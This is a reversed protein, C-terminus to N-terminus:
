LYDELGTPDQVQFRGQLVRIADDIVEKKGNILM